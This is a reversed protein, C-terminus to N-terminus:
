GAPHRAALLEQIRRAHYVLVATALIALVSLLRNSVLGLLDPDISPLFAGIAVM